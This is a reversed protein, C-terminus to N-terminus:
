PVLGPRRDRARSGPASLETIRSFLTDQADGNLYPLIGEVSWASPLTTDFGAAAVSISWDDRLDAAVDRREAAPEASHGALVRTKFELVKPQDVEFLTTGSPGSLVTPM